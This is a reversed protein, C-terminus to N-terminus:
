RTVTVKGTMGPHLTCDYPFSGATDFRRSVSRNGTVAIDAPAGATSRNFVVNHERAPFEWTVVGGVPITVEFPSFIDGPMTVLVTGSSQGAFVVVTATASAGGGSVTVTGSGPAVGTVLGTGDVSAITAPSVSWTFRVNNVASGNAGNAVATLKQTGATTVSFSSPTVSISAVGSPGSSDGGCGLVVLVSGITAPIRRM